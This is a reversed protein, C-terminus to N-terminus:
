KKFREDLEVLSQKHEQRIIAVRKQYDESLSRRRSAVRAATDISASTREEFRRADLTIVNQGSETCTKTLENTARLQDLATSLSEDSTLHRTSELTLDIRPTERSVDRRGGWHEVTSVFSEVEQDMRQSHDCLQSVLSKFDHNVQALRISAGDKSLTSLFGSFAM